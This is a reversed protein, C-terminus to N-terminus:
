RSFLQVDYIVLFEVGRKDKIYINSVDIWFSSLPYAQFCITYFAFRLSFRGMGKVGFM